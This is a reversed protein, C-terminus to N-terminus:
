SIFLMKGYSLHKKLMTVHHSIKWNKTSIKRDVRNVEDLFYSQDAEIKKGIGNTRWYSTNLPFDISSCRNWTDM